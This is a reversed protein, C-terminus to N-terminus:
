ADLWIKQWQHYLTPHTVYGQVRPSTASFVARFFPQVMIADDQIIKEVREMAKRREEVDLISEAVTLAEDFAPNAYATENWPVGTRYALSLVMTGLPRHAWTTLSFPALNWQEWYKASPMVNVTLNIGAEALNQKLILCSDQEWTGQTNGVNVDIALGDAYGAEALLQKAKAIDRKVTPLKFYGPHIEGVHHNEGMSGLGRHAKEFIDQNDAALQIAQRVRIDDFPKNNVNMRIVGTQATVAHSVVINPIAEATELTTMDLSYIGDVQGSALAAIQAAAEQGVDIYQIEDLYVEGGWYPDERKKLVALEGVRFETLTYPGTGVPNKSLDGGEKEFDRHVIATPYDYLNEPISLVPSNLKLKVTHEDVKQVAGETMRTKMVPNGQEDKEGSDYQETMASFLGINSSGTAPDLWRTFNFVVDDANFDDGNSWKIGKRLNFTWETLDASASWSEALFPRTINDPGTIALYEVMHRAQNAKEGWDFTAPDQMEQVVMAFRLIGGMKPEAAQAVPMMSEGTIRGVVAYAATASMGLLCPTRLFERRDIRGAKLGEILEPIYPHLASGADDGTGNSNRHM